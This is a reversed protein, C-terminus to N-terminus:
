RHLTLYFRRGGRNIYFLINEGPKLHAIVRRFDQVGTIRKRDIEQIVDGKKLGAEEAVSGQEVNVVVVGKEDIGLGLQQLVDRTLDMVHIGSFVNRQIEEPSPAQPTGAIEKPMEAIIVNLTLEKGDRIIKVIASTGVKTQSVMNRLNAVSTVEKGNFEIIVDGKMIGAKKQLATRRSM